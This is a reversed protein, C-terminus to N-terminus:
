RDLTGPPRGGASGSTRDPGAPDTRIWAVFADDDVNRGSLVVVVDGDGGLDVGPGLLAALAIAGSPETRLGHQDYLWRMAARTADDPVAIAQPVLRQLIPWNHEGV